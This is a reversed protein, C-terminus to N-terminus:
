PIEYVALEDGVGPLAYSRQVPEVGSAALLSSSDPHEVV